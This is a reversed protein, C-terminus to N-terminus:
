QKSFVWVFGQADPLTIVGNAYKGYLFPFDAPLAISDRTITYKGALAISSVVAAAPPTTSSVYYVERANGGSTLFLTDAILKRTTNPSTQAMSVPLTMGSVTKLSFTGLEASFPSTVGGNLRTDCALVSSSLALLALLKRM